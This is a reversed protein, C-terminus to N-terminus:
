CKSNSSVVAVVIPGLDGSVRAEMVLAIRRNGNRAFYMRQDVPDQLVASSGHASDAAMSAFRNKLHILLPRSPFLM